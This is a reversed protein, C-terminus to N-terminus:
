ERMHQCLIVKPRNVPRYFRDIYWHHNIFFSATGILFGFRFLSVFIRLLIHSSLHIMLIRSFASYYLFSLVCFCFPILCCKCLLMLSSLYNLLFDIFFIPNFFLIIWIICSCSGIISAFCSVEFYRFCIYLCTFGSLMFFFFIFLKICGCYFM